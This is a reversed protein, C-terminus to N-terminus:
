GRNIVDLAEELFEDRGDRIGQITREVPVTPQIGILHHQSGDLKVVKMGTWYFVFRGPLQMPNVNGNAGATPQGVIEGLGYGEVLGMISEAYSIARADTVFVVQGQIHPELPVLGWGHEQWGAPEVHDPYIIQPVQMWAMSSDPETLLHGIVPHTGQPYGRLDFIVGRAEAIDKMRTEIDPMTARALDVYFVGEEIAEIAEPRSEGFGQDAAERAISVELREDGRRLVLDLPSGQEGAGLLFLARARKHQASGSTRHEVEQLAEYADVGNITEIVDGRQLSPNGDATVVLRDEVWDVTVPLFGTPRLAAHDIMAHGDELAVALQDLTTVYDEATEDTLGRELAMTLQADWDTDIVDFYPYFHQLVNWAIVIGALRTCESSVHLADLNVSDVETLMMSLPKGDARPATPDNESVLALPIRASLGADLEIEIVEGLAPRVEFLDESIVEAPGNTIEVSRRGGAPQDETVKFAYGPTNAQWGPPPGDVEGGEFGPNAIEIPAWAGGDDAVFLQVDDVWASGRGSLFGGYVVHSADNAVDGVIEVDQWEASTVPRDGMNDFFGMQREPRDVRLWMHAQNGRGDVVARLKAALKISRGRYPTADLSQIITGFGPGTSVELDRATRKSQYTSGSTSLGVGLHQWAVIEADAAADVVATDPPKEGTPFIQVSPAVPLFLREMAPLLEEQSSVERIRIVGLVAFRDWDVAAAEDSPHFFRVYGYMKTFARLNKVEWSPEPKSEACSTILGAFFSAVLLGILLRSSAKQHLM